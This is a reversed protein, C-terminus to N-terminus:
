HWCSTWALLLWRKSNSVRQTSDGWLPGLNYFANGHTSYMMYTRLFSCGRNEVVTTSWITRVIHQFTNCCILKSDFIGSYGHIYQSTFLYISIKITWNWRLTIAPSANDRCGRKIIRYSLSLILKIIRFHGCNFCTVFVTLRDRPAFYLVAKHDLPLHVLSKDDIAVWAIFACRLQM